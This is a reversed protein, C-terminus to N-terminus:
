QVSKEGLPLLDVQLDLPYRLGMCPETCVPKLNLQHPSSAPSVAMPQLGPDEAMADVPPWQSGCHSRSVAAWGSANLSLPCDNKPPVNM